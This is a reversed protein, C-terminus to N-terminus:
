WHCRSPVLRTSPTPFKVPVVLAVRVLLAMANSSAASPLRPNAQITLPLQPGAALEIRTASVTSGNGTPPMAVAALEAMQLPPAVITLKLPWVPTMTFHCPDVSPPAVQDSRAQVFLGKITKTTTPGPLSGTAAANRATTSLPM